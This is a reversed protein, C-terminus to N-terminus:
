YDHISTVTSWLSLQTSFFQHKQITTSSLVTSLGKSLLSISVTFGLPFWDPINMPLVSASASAGTSQDGSAFLQIMPFSGSAPFSQPPSPLLPQSPQIVDSVWHVHAQAFELLYHLVPFGPTSCDMLDCLTLCSKAVSFCIGGISYTFHFNLCTDRKEVFFPLSINPKLLTQSTPSAYHGWAEWFVELLIM